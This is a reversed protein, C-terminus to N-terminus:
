IINLIRGPVYVIKTIAPPFYKALNEQKRALDLVESEAADPAVAITGRVKGAFQVAITVVERKLLDPNYQPWASQCILGEGGLFVWLEEAIHPAFPALIQLLHRKNELSIASEELGANVLIMLASIATNYRFGKIDETVKKMTQHAARDFDGSNEGHPADHILKWVKDLFRKTGVMNKTSWAIADEFPGMFMEYARFTDAGYEAIIEDPNIVNGFSKSMKRGDEAIILGQNRLSLFPESFNLYGADRLAKTLFRSFLLHLVAHEAGGVYIDVPLWQRLTEPDFAAQSNHPDAFRL